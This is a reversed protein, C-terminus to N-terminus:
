IHRYNYCVFTAIAAKTNHIKEDIADQQVSQSNKAWKKRKPLATTWFRYSFGGMTNKLENFGPEIKYRLAYATIIEEATLTLSSSMLITQGIDSDVAVFRVLEGIPKWVLDMILYKVKTPKGYLAMTTETFKSMDSFLGYLKVKDGYIRPRGPEKKVPPIPVTFAVTDSSARVVIEVMKEGSETVVGELATFASGKCFYADLATVVPEGISKAAEHVSNMMQVVITEGLPKNTSQDKPPVKHQHTLLPLSRSLEGNTIVASVHGYIHGEIFEGKGSNESEQHLIQIEPM